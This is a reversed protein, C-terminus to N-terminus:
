ERSSRRSGRSTSAPGQLVADSTFLRALATWDRQDVAQAYRCVLEYLAQKHSAESM